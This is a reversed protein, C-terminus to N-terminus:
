GIEVLVQQHCGSCRFVVNGGAPNLSYPKQCWPCKFVQLSAPDSSEEVTERLLLLPISDDTSDQSDVVHATENTDIFRKIVDTISRGAITQQNAVAHKAQVPTSEGTSPVVPTAILSGQHAAAPRYEAATQQTTVQLLEYAGRTYTEISVICSLFEGGAIQIIGIAALLIGGVVGILGFTRFNILGVVAIMAGLIVIVWGIASVLRAYQMLVPFNPSPTPRHPSTLM